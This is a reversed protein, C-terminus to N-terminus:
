GIEYSPATKTAVMYGIDGNPGPFIISTDNPVDYKIGLDAPNSEYFLTSGSGALRPRIGTLKELYERWLALRPEISVAAPELDNEYDGRPGGLEDWRKYCPGTPVGFPPIILTIDLDIPPLPELVEGVGKVTARGGTICFPVDAGLEVAQFHPERASTCWRWIAAADSSGGGLGGGNPINKILTVAARVEFKSLTKKVLNESDLPVGQSFDGLIVFGEADGEIRIDDGFNLSVMEAEILHMGDDRIGVVRLSRTLKANARLEIAAM